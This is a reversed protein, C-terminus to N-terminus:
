VSMGQIRDLRFTRVSHGQNNSIATLYHEGNFRVISKSLKDGAFNVAKAVGSNIQINHDRNGYRLTFIPAGRKEAETIREIVGDIKEQKERAELENFRAVKNAKVRLVIFAIILVVATIILKNM